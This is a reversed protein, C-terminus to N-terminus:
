ARAPDNRSARILLAYGRRRHGVGGVFCSQENEPDCTETLNAVYGKGREPRM